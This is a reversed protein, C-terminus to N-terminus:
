PPATSVEAESRRKVRSSGGKQDLGPTGPEYVSVSHSTELGPTNETQTAQLHARKNKLSQKPSLFKRSELLPGGGWSSKSTDRVKLTDM